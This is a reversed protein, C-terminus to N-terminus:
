VTREEGKSDIIVIAVDPHLRRFQEARELAAAESPFTEFATGERGFTWHNGIQHIFFKDRPEM